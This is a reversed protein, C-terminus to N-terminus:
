INERLKFVQIGDEGFAVYILGNQLTIYNASKQSAAHYYCIEEMTAKDLVSVFSGNAVYIYKDDFAMGNVPVNNNTGRKFTKGDNVRMLGGQSLCVYINEGDIAIVNKGDIPSVNNLNNYTTKNGTFLAGDFVEVVAPSSTVKRETLSIVATKGNASAIHKSSGTTPNFTGKVRKLDLGLVGYGEYTAVLYNDGQRLICNGDGANQYDVIIENGTKESIGYVPVDTKLERVEFDERVGESAAFGLPLTGVFAGNKKSNGVTIIKGNDVILHNFDYDPSIMYSGLSIEEGECNIVEICGKQAYQGLYNENKDADKGNGRLHYSAYAVGNHFTICTASIVGHEHDPDDELPDLDTIKEIIIEPDEPTPTPTVPEEPDEPGPPPVTGEEYDGENYNGHCGAAPVSADIAESSTVLEFDNIPTKVGAIYAEKFDVIVGSLFTNKAWQVNNTEFKPAAVVAKNGDVSIRTDANSLFLEETALILGNDDLVINGTNMTITKALFLSTNITGAEHIDIHEDARFACATADGNLRVINAIVSARAKLSGDVGFENAVIDNVSYITSNAGVTVKDFNLTGYNYIDVGSNITANGYTFSAGPLVYITSQGACNGFNAVDWDGAVYVTVDNLVPDEVYYVIGNGDTANWDVKKKFTVGAPIYYVGGQKLNGWQYNVYNGWQDKATLDLAEAPVAPADPMEFAEYASRAGASYNHVRAQNGAYVTYGAKSAADTVVEEEQGPTPENKPEASCGTMMGLVPVLCLPLAFAKVSSLTVKKM